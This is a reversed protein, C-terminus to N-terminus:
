PGGEASAITAISRMHVEYVYQPISTQTIYGKRVAKCIM